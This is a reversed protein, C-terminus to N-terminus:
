GNDSIHNLFLQKWRLMWQTLLPENGHDFRLWAREGVRNIQNAALQVDVIFVPELTRLNDPDSPDTLVPGGAAYALAASPLRNTASPTETILTAPLPTAGSERLRVSIGTTRSKVLAADAQPIVARLRSADNQLVHALVTGKGIFTGLLDQSRPIVIRGSVPAKITLAALERTIEDKEAQKSDIAEELQKLQASDTNIVANYQADLAKLEADIQQRRAPLLPNDLLFLPQGQEVQEGDAALIQRITGKTATRVRAEDAVWVVGQALTAYPMPLAVVALLLLVASISAVAWARARHRQIEPSQSLYTFIEWAPKLLLAFLFMLGIAAALLLSYNSFWGVLVIMIGIRYFWSAPGYAALWPAEGPALDMPTNVKARLLKRRALHGWFVKTRAALNPIELWDALMHYGDFKVLPNANFM